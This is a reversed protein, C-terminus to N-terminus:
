IERRGPFTRRHIAGVPPQVEEPAVHFLAIIGLSHVLPRAVVPRERGEMNRASEPVQEEDLSGICSFCTTVANRLHSPFIRIRLTNLRNKSYNKPMFDIISNKLLSLDTKFRKVRDLDTNKVSIQPFRM